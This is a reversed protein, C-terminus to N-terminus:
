PFSAEPALVSAWTECTELVARHPVRGLARAVSEGGCILVRAGEPLWLLIGGLTALACANLTTGLDLVYRRIGRSSWTRVLLM